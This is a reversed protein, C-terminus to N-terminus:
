DMTLGNCLKIDKQSVNYILSLKILSDSMLVKHVLFQKENYVVYLPKEKEATEASKLHEVERVMSAQEIFDKVEEFQKLPGQLEKRLQELRKDRETM